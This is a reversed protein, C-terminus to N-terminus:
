GGTKRSFDSPKSRFTGGGETGDMEEGEEYDDGEDDGGQTGSINSM